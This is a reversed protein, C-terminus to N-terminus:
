DPSFEAGHSAGVAPALLVSSTCDDPFFLSDDMGHQLQDLSNETKFATANKVVNIFFSQISLTKVAKVTSNFVPFQTEHPVGRQQM